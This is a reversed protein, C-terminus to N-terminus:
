RLAHTGAPSCLGNGPLLKCSITCDPALPLVTVKSRQQGTCQAYPSHSDASTAEARDTFKSRQLHVAHLDRAQQALNFQLALSRREHGTAAEQGGESGVVGAWTSPAKHLTPEESADSSLLVEEVAHSPPLHTLSNIYTLTHTHTLTNTHTHRLTHTDICAHLTQHVCCHLGAAAAVQLSAEDFVQLADCDVIVECHTTSTAATHVAHLAAQRERHTHTHLHSVRITRHHLEQVPFISQVDAAAPEQLRSEEGEQEVVVHYELLGGLWSEGQEIM